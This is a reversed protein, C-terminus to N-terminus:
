DYSALMPRTSTCTPLAGLLRGVILFGPTARVAEMRKSPLSGRQGFIMSSQAPLSLASLNMGIELASRVVLAIRTM